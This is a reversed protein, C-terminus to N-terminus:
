GLYTEKSQNLPCFKNFYILFVVRARESEQEVSHCDSITGREQRAHALNLVLGRSPGPLDRTWFWKSFCEHHITKLM